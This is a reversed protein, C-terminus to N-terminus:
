ERHGNEALSKAMKEFDNMYQVDQIKQFKAFEGLAKQKAQAHSRTGKGQLVDRRAYRLFGDMADVCDQMSTLVHDEARDELDDLFRNVLRNLRRIEDEALYNKAIDVDSSHIRSDPSGKWSTLGMHPKSADARDDVIEAATQGVVAYHMKNQVSAFFERAVNSDKDYDFSCEQFIDTVKQWVRRESARIDRIRALLEDFYDRGFPEGNKLMDDNLVFGKTIYEKLTRTAWQRFRTAKFSNVRYGVAIIADLNYIEVTRAVNREGETQVQVFLTSTSDKALEGEAFINKLHRSITQPAVGFLEGMEKQTLWFTENLYRVEVPVVTGESEYLVIEASVAGAPKRVQNEAEEKM